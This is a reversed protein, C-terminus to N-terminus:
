DTAFQPHYRNRIKRPYDPFLFFTTCYISSLCLFLACCYGELVWQSGRAIIARKSSFLLSSIHLHRLQCVFLASSYFFHFNYVPLHLSFFLPVSRKSAFILIAVTPGIDADRYMYPLGAYGFGATGDGVGDVQPMDALMKTAAVREDDGM